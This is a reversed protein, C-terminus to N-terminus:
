VPSGELLADALACGAEILDPRLCDLTADAGLSRMWTLQRKALQRTAIIGRERLEVEDLEGEQFAWAQRYGVCRMSPLARHLGPLTARLAAVEDALGASLMADFRGAIRAHLVARDSPPLALVRFQGAPAASRSGGHLESLPVGTLLFVELARQVRQADGPELRAATLPDCRALEAHLAPWGERLARADLNARVAADAPPLADLGELLAKFYLMTGGALIARRGRSQIDAIAATADHCFRAASYAELPSLIYILHHPIRVREEASPKATGADMGRYIAASDVSVIEANWHEALALALASKGAATPGMLMLVPEPPRDLSM